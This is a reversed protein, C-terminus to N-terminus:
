LSTVEGRHLPRIEDATKFVRHFVCRDGSHLATALWTAGGMRFSFVANEDHGAHVHVSGDSRLVLINANGELTAAVYRLADEPGRQGLAEMFLRFGVESDSTGELAGEFRARFERHRRFYGNHCFALDSAELYPQSNAERVDMLFSPRRLHVIFSSSEVGRLNPSVAPDDGLAMESRYRRVRGDEVWAVGWGFGAVGLDEMLRAWELVHEAPLPRPSRVALLECM